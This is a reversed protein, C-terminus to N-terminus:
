LADIWLRIDQAITKQSSGFSAMHLEGVKHSATFIFNEALSTLRKRPLQGALSELRTKEKEQATKQTQEARVTSYHFFSKVFIFITVNRPIVAPIKFVILSSGWTYLLQVVFCVRSREPYKTAM